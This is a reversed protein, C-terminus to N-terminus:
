VVRGIRSLIGRLWALGQDGDKQRSWLMSLQWPPMEVPTEYVMLPAAQAFLRAVRAGVTAILDNSPLVAPVVLAHPVTLAVRRERGCKALAEDM